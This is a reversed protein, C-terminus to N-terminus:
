RRLFTLIVDVITEWLGRRSPKVPDNSQQHNSDPLADPVASEALPDDDWGAAVLARHFDRHYRAIKADTGDKGNVIRRPHDRWPADLADPFTYDSLKRGTYIGEMMGVVASDAGHSPKLLMDPKDRLPIGLRKGMALYNREHTTQIPGRGFWGDRWYPAKVWPLRGNKWATDLRRIVTADSPNKDKHHPMVTEKIPLMYTGTEHYVQALINAAHHPDTVTNRQMSDLLAQTGKVQPQTLRSGFVGGPERLVDYFITRNM